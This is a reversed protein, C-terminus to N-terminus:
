GRAPGGSRIRLTKLQQAYIEKRLADAARVPEDFVLVLVAHEAPRTSPRRFGIRAPLEFGRDGLRFSASVGLDAVIGDAWSADVTCRLAAESVDLLHGTAVEAASSDDSSRLTLPGSAPVRVFRRRQEVWGDGTIAMSWLQVGGETLAELLRTPLVAIGRACRWTLLMEISPGPTEGAPLDLPRAVTIVGPGFGEVRSHFSRDAHDRLVVPDNIDPRADM